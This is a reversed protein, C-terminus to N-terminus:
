DGRSLNRPLWTPARHSPYAELIDALGVRVPMARDTGQIQGDVVALENNEDSRRSASFRRRQAHDRAELVDAFALDHDAAGDGVFERRAIAVDRHHKLAIRKIGMQRDRSFMPKPKFTRPTAFAVIASFTFAAARVSELQRFIEASLRRLKRSTLPLADRHAAGDHALRVGKQHVLGKPKQVARRRTWM